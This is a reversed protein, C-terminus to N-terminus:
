PIALSEAGDGFETEKAKKKACHIQTSLMNDFVNTSNKYFFFIHIYTLHNITIYKLTYFGDQLKLPFLDSSVSRFSCDCISVFVYDIFRVLTVTM